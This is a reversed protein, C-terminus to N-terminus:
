KPLASAHIGARPRIADDKPNLHSLVDAMPQTLNQVLIRGDPLILLETNLTESGRASGQKTTKM